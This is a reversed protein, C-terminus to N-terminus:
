GNYGSCGIGGVDNDVSHCDGDDGGAMMMVIM